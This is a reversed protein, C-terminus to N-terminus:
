VAAPFVHFKFLDHSLDDVCEDNNIAAPDLEIVKLRAHPRVTFGLKHSGDCPMEIRQRGVAARDSCLGGETSTPRAPM